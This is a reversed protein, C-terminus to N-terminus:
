GAPEVRPLFRTAITLLLHVVGLVIFFATPNTEDSFGFLFPAAILAVALVLDLVVHAKIPISRSLGTPSDTSAAVVLIVIGVVISVAKAAGSDFGFVWPAVIFLVGAAYEIVGHVFLPVLGQRLM